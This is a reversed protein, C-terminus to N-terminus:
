AEAVPEEEPEWVVPEPEDPEEPELPERGAEEPVEAREAAWVM